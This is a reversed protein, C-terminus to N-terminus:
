LRGMAKDLAALAEPSLEDTKGGLLRTLLTIKAASELVELRDFSELLSKGVTLVGHNRMIVCNGKSAAEAVASALEPSGPTFYGAYIIKGLIAYSESIYNLNIKAESACFASATVPHAHTVASVDPRAKYIGLHMFSEISPRFGPTVAKGDLTVEGIEDARMRGKDSGSPTVLAHGNPLRVSLNGGSTTTLGKEYLRRMFYAVEERETEFAGGMFIRM